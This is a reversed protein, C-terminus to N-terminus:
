EIPWTCEANEPDSCALWKQAFLAYDELNVYCDKNFDTPYFQGAETCTFEGDEVVITFEGVVDEEGDPVFTGGPNATGTGMIDLSIDAVSKPYIVFDTLRIQAKKEINKWILTGGTAAAVASHGDSPGTLDNLAFGAIGTAENDFLLGIRSHLSNPDVEVLSGLDTGIGHSFAFSYSYTNGKVLDLTISRDANNQLHDAIANPDASLVAITTDFLAIDWAADEPITNWFESGIIGGSDDATNLTMGSMILPNPDSILPWTCEGDGPNNCKLWDAVWATFDQLDVYCDENFDMPYFTTSDACTFNGFEVSLTFEGAIDETGDPDYPQCEIGLSVWPETQIDLSVNPAAKPYLVFNTVRIQVGKAPNKWVVPGAAPYGFGPNGDTPGTTDKAAFLTIGATDKQDFYFSMAYHDSTLDYGAPTGNGTFALTYTKGRQLEVDIDGNIVNNLLVLDLQNPDTIAAIQAISGNLVALDWYTPEYIQTTNWAQGAVPVGQNDSSQMFLYRLYVVSPDYGQYDNTITIGYKQSLYDHVAYYQDASVSDYVLIESVNGYLWQRGIDLVGVTAISNGYNLGTGPGKIKYDGDFYITKLDAATDYTANVITYQDPNGTPLLYEMSSGSWNKATFWKLKNTVGDSMGVGWGQVDSYNGVVIQGRPSNDDVNIVAFVSVTALRLGAPDALLFGDNGDFRIAKKTGAAIMTPTGWGAKVTADHGSGSMDQWKTVTDGVEAPVFLIPSNPEPNPKLAGEDAKLWLKLGATPPAALLIQSFGIGILLALTVILLSKRTKM